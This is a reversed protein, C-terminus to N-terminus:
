KSNRLKVQNETFNNVERPSKNNAIYDFLIKIANDGQVYPQQTVTASIVGDRLYKHVPETDDVALIRIDRGSELIARVGGGIGAAAFYILDPEQEELLKKVAAYSQEDDDENELEAIVKIGPTKSVSDVFGEVRQQHGFIKFSGVVIAANGGRGLILKALDGSIRGSNYYDCGVFAIKRIDIDTNFTVIPITLQELRAKIEPLNIPMIALGDIGEKLLEDIAGIQEKACYGRIQKVSVELGYIGLKKARSYIGKLVDDFFPNGVSHIVVGIRIRKRSNILARALQNPQYNERAAIDKIKQALEPNVNGRDNLVRDVTGRSTGALDAIEKVTM